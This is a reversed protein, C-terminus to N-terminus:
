LISNILRAGDLLYKELVNNTLDYSRIGLSETSIYNRSDISFDFGERYLKIVIVNDKGFEEILPSVEYDFGGDSILFDSVFKDSKIRNMLSYGFFGRDFNCKVYLESLEKNVDRWSKNFFRTNPTDKIVSSDFFTLEDDTMSFLAKLALKLPKAFKEKKFRSNKSVLYDALSDKGSSPPGNLIFIKPM